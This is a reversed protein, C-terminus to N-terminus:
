SEIKRILDYFLRTKLAQIDAAKYKRIGHQEPSLGDTNKPKSTSIIGLRNNHMNSKIDFIIIPLLRYPRCNNPYKQILLDIGRQYRKPPYGTCWPFNFRRWGTEVLETDLAETKVMTPTVDSPGSSTPERLHRVEKIYEAM